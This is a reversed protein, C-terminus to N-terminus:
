SLAYAPEEVEVTSKKTLKYPASLKTLHGRKVLWECATELHWPYLQTYAFHDCIHSLGTAEPRKGLYEFLPKLHAQHKEQLYQEVRDMATELNAQSGRDALLDLYITKFLQPEKELALYIADAEHVQGAEVVVAAAVAHAVEVMWQCALAVDQNRELTRRAHDHVHTIWCNVALLEKQQDKIALENAQQFWKEISADKSFLLERRAFFSCSFATRSNGELMRKFRSRPILECRLNLDNETLSRFRREEQGDSQHRKEVGDSEILWLRIGERRWIIEPDLSGVLVAALITRDDQLREQFLELAQVFREHEAQPEFIM